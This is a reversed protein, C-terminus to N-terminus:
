LSDEHTHETVIRKAERDYSDALDRITAAFRQYGHNEVENAQQRYKAALEKEPKGTPDVRHVGRSNFIGMRFGNRIKESDKANLVATAAHHIWLGDPDPPCHILVNGVHSLAVDLHGSASCAEKISALWKNFHDRSFTGDPQIGPPTRWERLLRYANAAIAKQQETPEKDSNEEYKSRYILRIVECFFNPDTALRHELLKPSADQHRDLLPLYAWEIQFLDDPNTNLDNQLTKIIELTNYVNMSNAHEGSSVAALLAKVTQEINLPQKDNLIRYLCSIAANPRGHEVLKDIALNLDGEAQYPNVSAKSWYESENERLLEDSRKWTEYTFPLYSLFQGKEETSWGSTDIKDVWVWGQSRYRGWVFGSAFQALKSNETELLKPLIVSDTNVDDILGLCLGVHLSSEVAEAFKIVTELGHTTVIEQIAHQRRKELKRQQDEWDGIKEHLEFDRGSFLRRYLNLPNQPALREAIKEIKEIMESNLAWESDAYKNHKSVFIVLKAWLPLREEEPKNAIEESELHGLLKDFAPQPLNHLNGILETLKAIDTNAIEVAMDAYYSVQDWYEQQSVGKAVDEPIPERWVPKHTGISMQHQNPLLSLLTQWAIEPVEKQLTRVAVKRKEVSATTQSFWPLFITTLSNAPRNAWNGGPDRSALEGLAVVIRALYKEDWALTELAWLLGTMYNRGTIGNGEQLFLEDFPCPTRQLAAEVADLFEGPAAEAFMPLLNNLSAWLVWDANDLINRVALVAITEPKNLSCNTLAKPHSGLLALTEALGKRLSNSHILVKGYISAAYREDPRLEFQPDRETLIRVVCEQFRDLNDDFLRAGLTQWVELRRDVAWKGNKLTLPSEPHQLIERIKSIWNAFNENALHGIIAKDAEYKDDWSGLLNTIALESAFSFQSWNVITSVSPTRAFDVPITEIVRRRFSARLEEPLSNLTITGANQNSFQVEDVLRTWLAHANEQSYQCILSQLLSLTVGAKIDLDYGLLHFSKMFRWLDDDSVDIDGNAKKLQVRFARLKNRKVKSSFNAQDVKTLFDEASESHRAWELITRVDEIDTASLPGTILAISDSGEIFVKPNKFDSWAAQLVEGFIKDGETIKLSHKIQGILKIEKEADPSKAFVILDDTDYGAYKGQLKIKKIPWLPLLCPAFGGTLMLAVFATQVRTEFNGGGGGTSFSNSLQKNKSNM